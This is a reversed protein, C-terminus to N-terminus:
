TVVGEVCIWGLDRGKRVCEIENAWIGEWMDGIVGVLLWLKGLSREEVERGRDVERDEGIERAGRRIVIFRSGVVM